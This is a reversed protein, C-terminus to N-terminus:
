NNYDGVVTFFNVLSAATVKTQSKNMELVVYYYGKGNLLKGKFQGDKYPVNGLKKPNRSSDWYWVINEKNIIQNNNVIPLTNMIIVKTNINEPTPTWKINPSTTTISSKHKPYILSIEPVNSFLKINEPLFQFIINRNNDSAISVGNQCAGYIKSVNWEIQDSLILDDGIGKDYLGCLGNHAIRNKDVFQLKSSQLTKLGIANYLIKVGKLTVQSHESAEIGVTNQRLNSNMIIIQANDKTRIGIKSNLVTSNKLIASANNEVLIGVGNGAYLNISDLITNNGLKILPEYEIGLLFNLLNMIEDDNDSKNLLYGLNEITVNGEGVIKMNAPFNIPFTENTEEGYIGEQIILTVDEYTFPDLLDNFDMEEAINKLARTISTSVRFTSHPDDGNRNVYYIRDNGFTSPLFITNNADITKAPTAQENNIFDLNNSKKNSDCSIFIAPLLILFYFDNFKM